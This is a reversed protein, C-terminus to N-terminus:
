DVRDHRPEYYGVMSSFVSELVHDNQATITSNELIQVWVIYTFVKKESTM